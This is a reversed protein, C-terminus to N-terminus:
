LISPEIRETNAANDADKDFITEESTVITKHDMENEIFYRQAENDQEIQISVPDNVLLEDNELSSSTYKRNKIM